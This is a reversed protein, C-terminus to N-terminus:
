SWSKFPLEALVILFENYVDRLGAQVCSWIYSFWDCWTMWRAGECDGWFRWLKCEPDSHSRLRSHNIKVGCEDTAEVKITMKNVLVSQIMFHITIWYTYFYRKNMEMELQNGKVKKEGGGDDGKFRQNDASFHLNRCKTPKQNPTAQPCIRRQWVIADRFRFHIRRSTM